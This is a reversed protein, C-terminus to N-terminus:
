AVFPPSAKPAALLRERRTSAVLASVLERQASPLEVSIRETAPHQGGMAARLMGLVACHEEGARVTQSSPAHMHAGPHVLEDLHNELAAVSTAVRGSTGATHPVLALHAVACLQALVLTTALWRSRLFVARIV